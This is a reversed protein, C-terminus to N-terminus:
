FEVDKMNMKKGTVKMFSKRILVSSNEKVAEKITRGIEEIFHEMKTNVNALEKGFKM